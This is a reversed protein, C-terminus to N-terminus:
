LGLDNSIDQMAKLSLSTFEELKLGLKECLKIDNRSVNAAFSKQKFKKLISEPTVSALKKDPQVLACAVILGTIQEACTLAFDLKTKRAVGTNEANHAKIAQLQEESFGKDKLIDATMLSHKEPTEKTEEFDLDHILGVIGWEAEPEGLREALVKIIAESALMHKVLNQNKIKSKILELAEDRTM